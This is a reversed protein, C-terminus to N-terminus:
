FVLYSCRQYRSPKIEKVFCLHTFIGEKKGERCSFQGTLISKSPKHGKSTHMAARPQGFEGPQVQTDSHVALSLLAARM